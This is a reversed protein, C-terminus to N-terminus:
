HHDPAEEHHDPAEEAALLARKVEQQAAVNEWQRGSHRMVDPSTGAFFIFMFAIATLLMYHVYKKEVNLHMFNTAVLYAKVVAIGFATVLTLWQIELTPGLVSILFLVMLTWYIKIYHKPGHDDHAHAESSAAM